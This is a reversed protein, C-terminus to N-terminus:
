QQEKRNRHSVFPVYGDSGSGQEGHAPPTHKGWGSGEAQKALWAKKAAAASDEAGSDDHATEGGGGGDGDDTSSSPAEEDVDGSVPAPVELVRSLDALSAVMARADFRKGQSSPLVENAMEFGLSEYWAILRGTGSGVDSRDLHELTVFPIDEPHQQLTAVMLRLLTPGGGQGRHKEDVDIHELEACRICLLRELTSPTEGDCAVNFVVRGALRGDHYISCESFDGRSSTSWGDFHNSGTLPEMNYKSAAAAAGIPPLSACWNRGATIARRRM